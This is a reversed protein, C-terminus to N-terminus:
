VSQWIVVLPAFSQRSQLICIGYLHRQGVHHFTQYHQSDIVFRSRQHQIRQLRRGVSPLLVAFRVCARPTVM